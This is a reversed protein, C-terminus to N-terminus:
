ARRAKVSEKPFDPTIRVPRGKDTVQGKERRAKLITQETNKTNQNNHM